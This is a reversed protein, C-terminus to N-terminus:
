VFILDVRGINRYIVIFGAELSVPSDLRVGFEGYKLNEVESYQYQSINCLTIYKVIRFTFYGNKGM